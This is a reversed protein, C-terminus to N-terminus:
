VSCVLDSGAYEKALVVRVAVERRCGTRGVLWVAVCRMMRMEERKCALEM